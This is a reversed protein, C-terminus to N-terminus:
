SKRDDKGGGRVKNYIANAVEKPVIQEIEEVSADRIDDLTPFHKIVLEKRKIGLGKIGDFISTYMNKLRKKRHTTIAFRHVEDQMRTLLFFLPKDDLLEHSVGDSDVLASTRHRDDKVLGALPMKIELKDLSIKAAEVQEFGGDVIILDPFGSKEEKVRSYRRFIVEEISSFDSKKNESQIDFKRYEDKVPDGNIFCVMAGVASTGMLHSNDFLEIRYPTDIDLLKGLRELIKMKDEDVTSTVFHEDLAQLANEQAVSLEDFVKGRNPSTFNAEILESLAEKLDRSAVAIENPLQNSKYYQGIVDVLFEVLEGVIEYTFVKKAVLLGKRFCMVVISVFNNKVAFAILDRDLKDIFEVAQKETVSNISDLMKKYDLASEYDLRESAEAIKRKIDEKIERDDGRLFREIREIIEDYTAREVKNICPALCQHMHYYLCPGNKVNNCKRLPFLKDIIDITEYAASSNPEPGFYDCRKDKTNRAISVYPDKVKMHVAIYPYHKDDMLMINFRPHYKQILNMELILAEKETSTVITTFHDVNYVMAATKGNQPRLFYQSVRKKLNKAKGIYIIRDESDRMQYSGPKDPLLEIQRKLIENM